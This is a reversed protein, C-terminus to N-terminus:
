KTSIQSPSHRGLRVCLEQCVLYSCRVAAQNPSWGSGAGTDHSSASVFRSASERVLSPGVTYARFAVFIKEHYQPEIGIGNDVVAFRLDDDRKEVSIHIRPPESGRYKIANGILNQFLPVFHARHANLTPLPDATVVANSESISVKLNQRVIDIVANLDVAEVPVEMQAGVEAYALLDALLERMRQAGGVINNVFSAVNENQASSYAKVLLQSYVSIM